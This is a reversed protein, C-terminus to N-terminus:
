RLGSWANATGLSWEVVTGALSVWDLDTVDPMGLFVELCQLLLVWGQGITEVKEPVM